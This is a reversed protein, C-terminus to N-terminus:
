LNNWSSHARLIKEELLQNAGKVRMEKSFGSAIFEQAYLTKLLVTRNSGKKKRAASSPWSMFITYKFHACGKAYTKIPLSTGTLIKYM